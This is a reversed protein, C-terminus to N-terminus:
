QTNSKRYRLYSDVMLAIKFTMADDFSRIDLGTSRALKELRYVLTNRHLYLQRATESINLNNEFFKNITTRIDEELDEPKEMTFTEALFMECLSEPLHYILRGIGLSAYDHIMQHTYFIRGVEMAIRAEKYSSSLQRLDSVISGYSVRVASMAETNLMDCITRATSRINEEESGSRERLERVLVVSKEDIQTIFNGTDQTFMERLIQLSVDDDGSQTEVIFVLRRAEAEIHLRKAQNHVDVPLINDLLLNQIYANRDLREEYAQSLEQLQGAAIRGFTHADAGSACVTLIMQSREDETRVRFFCCGPLEQSDAASGAFSQAEESWDKLGADTAALLDGTTDYVAYDIRTIVHLRDISKKIIQSQLM